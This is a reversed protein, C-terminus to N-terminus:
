DASTSSRRIVQRSPGRPAMFASVSTDRRSGVSRDEELRDVGRLSQRRELAAGIDGRKPIDHGRRLVDRRAPTDRHKAAIKGLDLRESVGSLPGGGTPLCTRQDLSGAGGTVFRQHGFRQRRSGPELHLRALRLGCRLGELRRDQRRQRRAPVVEGGFRRGLLHGYGTVKQAAPFLALAPLSQRLSKLSAESRPVISRGRPEILTSPVNAVSSAIVFPRERIELQRQRELLLNQWGIDYIQKTLDGTGCGLDLITEHIEPQLYSLIGEGYKAVFDHSQDYLRSNWKM